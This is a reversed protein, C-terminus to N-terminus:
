NVILYDFTETGGASSADATAVTFSTAGTKVSVRLRKVGNQLNSAAANTDILVIKSTSKVNVDSVVKTAAAAMTFSGTAIRAGLVDLQVQLQAIRQDLQARFRQEADQSYEGDALPIPRRAPHGGRTGSTNPRTTM